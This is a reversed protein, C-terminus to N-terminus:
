LIPPSSVDNSLKELLPIAVNVSEPSRRGIMSLSDICADRLSNAPEIDIDLKILKVEFDIGISKDSILNVAVDHDRIAIEKLERKVKEPDSAYEILLPIVDKVFSPEMSGISGVAFAAFRRENWFKSRLKQEIFQKEAKIWSPNVGGLESLIMLAHIVDSQIIKKLRSMIDPIIPNLTEPKKMLIQRMVKWILDFVDDEAQLRSGLTNVIGVYHPISGKTKTFSILEFLGEIVDRKNDSIVLDLLSAV